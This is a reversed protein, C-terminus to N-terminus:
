LVNLFLARYSIYLKKSTLKGVELFDFLHINVYTEKLIEM